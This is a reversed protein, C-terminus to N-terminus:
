SCSQLFSEHSLDRVQLTLGLAPIGKKCERIINTCCQGLFKFPVTVTIGYMEGMSRFNHTMMHKFLLFWESPELFAAFLIGFRSNANTFMTRLPGLMLSWLSYGAVGAARVIAYSSFNLLTTCLRTSPGVVVALLLCRLFCRYRQIYLLGSPGHGFSSSPVQPGAKM